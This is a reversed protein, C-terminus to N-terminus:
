VKLSTTIKNCFCRSVLCVTATRSPLQLRGKTVSCALRKVRQRDTEKQTERDRETETEREGRVGSSQWTAWASGLNVVYHLGPQGGDQPEGIEAGLTGPNYAHM